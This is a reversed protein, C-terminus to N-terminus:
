KWVLKVKEAKLFQWTNLPDVGMAKCANPIKVQKGDSFREQTVITHGHAHAFGVLKFDAAAFFKDKAAQEYNKDAWATLLKLSEYTKGDATSLFMASRAKVWDTLPGTGNCIEDWVEEISFVKGDKHASDLWDWFGPCIDFGYHLNEAQMFVDSDLIYAM